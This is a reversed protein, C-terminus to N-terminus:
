EHSNGKESKIYNKIITKVLETASDFNNTQNGFFIIKDRLEKKVSFGFVKSDKNMNIEFNYNELFEETLKVFAESQNKYKNDREVTEVFEKKLEKNFIFNVNIRKM